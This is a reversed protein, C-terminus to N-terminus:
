QDIHKSSCPLDPNTSYARRVEHDREDDRENGDEDHEEHSHYINIWDEHFYQANHNMVEPEELQSQFL